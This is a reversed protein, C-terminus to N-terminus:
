SEDGERANRLEDCDRVPFPGVDFAIWRNKRIFRAANEDNTFDDARPTAVRALGGGGDSGRATLTKMSSSAGRRRTTTTAPAAPADDAVVVDVVDDDDDCDKEAVRPTTTSSMDHTKCQRLM